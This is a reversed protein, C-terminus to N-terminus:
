NKGDHNAACWSKLEGLDKKREKLKPSLAERTELRNTLYAAVADHGAKKAHDVRKELRATSGRGKGEDSMKHLTRELRKEIRPARGCLRKAGDKTGKKGSTAAAGKGAADATGHAASESGTGDGSAAVATAAGATGLVAFAATLAITWTKRTMTTMTTMTTRTSRM